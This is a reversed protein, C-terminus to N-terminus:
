LNQKVQEVFDDHFYNARSSPDTNTIENSNITNETYTDKSIDLVQQFRPLNPNQFSQYTPSLIFDLSTKHLTDENELRPRSTERLGDQFFSSHRKSPVSHEMSMMEMESLPLDVVQMSHLYPSHQSNHPPTFHLTHGHHGFTDIRQIQDQTLPFATLLPIENSDRARIMNQDHIIRQDGSWIKSQMHIQLPSNIRKTNISM